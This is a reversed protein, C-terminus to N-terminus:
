LRKERSSDIIRQLDKQRDEINIIRDFAMNGILSCNKYNNGLGKIFENWEYLGMTIPDRNILPLYKDTLVDLLYKLKDVDDKLNSIGDCLDNYQLLEVAVMTKETCETM